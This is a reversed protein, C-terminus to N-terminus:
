ALSSLCREYAGMIWIYGPQCIQSFNAQALDFFQVFQGAFSPVTYTNFKKSSNDRVQGEREIRGESDPKKYLTYIM